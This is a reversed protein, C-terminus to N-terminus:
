ALQPPQFIDYARDVVSGTIDRPQAKVPYIVVERHVVVIPSPLSIINHCCSCVCFPTCTDRKNEDDTPTHSQTNATVTVPSVCEDMDMCPVFSLVLLYISLIAAFWKLLAFTVILLFGLM